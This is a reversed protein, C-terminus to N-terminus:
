IKKGKYLGVRISLQPIYHMTFLLHIKSEILNSDVYTNVARFRSLDNKSFM